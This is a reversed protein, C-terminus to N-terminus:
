EKQLFFDQILSNVVAPAESHPIHGIDKLTVLVSKTLAKKLVSANKDIPSVIDDEGAILLVPKKIKTAVDTPSYGEAFVFYTTAQLFARKNTAKMQDNVTKILEPSAKKGLM